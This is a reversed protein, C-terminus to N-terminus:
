AYMKVLLCAWTFVSLGHATQCHLTCLKACSYVFCFVALTPPVPTLLFPLMGCHCACLLPVQELQTGDGSDFSDGQAPDWHHRAAGCVLWWRLVACLCTVMSASCYESLTVYPNPRPESSQANVLDSVQITCCASSCLTPTPPSAYTTRLSCTTCVWPFTPWHQKMFHFFLCCLQMDLCSLAHCRCANFIVTRSWHKDHHQSAHHQM